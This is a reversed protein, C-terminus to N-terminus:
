TNEVQAIQRMAVGSGAGVRVSAVSTACIRSPSAKTRPCRRSKGSKEQMAAAANAAAPMWTRKGMRTRRVSSMLAVWSPRRRLTPAIPPIRPASVREAHIFCRPMPRVMTTVLMM